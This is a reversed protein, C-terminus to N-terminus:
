AASVSYAGQESASTAAEASRALLQKGDNGKSWSAVGFCAEPKRAHPGDIMIELENLRDALKNALSIAANEDTEPLVFIFEGTELRGVLDAWRLQDRILQSVMLIMKDAAVQGISKQVSALNNIVMTVVSLPNQYRRSRSILPDLGLHIGRLNLLGSMPEVTNHQELQKALLTRERRLHEEETVDVYYVTRQDDNNSIPCRMIWRQRGNSADGMPFPGNNQPVSSPGGCNLFGKETRGICDGSKNGAWEALTDNCWLIFGDEDTIAIGMPANTLIHLCTEPDPKVMTQTETYTIGKLGPWTIVQGPTDTDLNGPTSIKVTPFPTIQNKLSKGAVPLNTGFKVGKDAPNRRFVKILWVTLWGTDSTM